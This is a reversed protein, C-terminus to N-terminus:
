PGSVGVYGDTEVKKDHSRNCLGLDYVHGGEVSRTKSMLRLNVSESFYM